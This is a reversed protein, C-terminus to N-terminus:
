GTAGWITLTFQARLVNIRKMLFDNVMAVADDIDFSDYIDMILSVLLRVMDQLPERLYEKILGVLYTKMGALADGLSANEDLYEGIGPLSTINSLLSSTLGDAFSMFAPEDEFVNISEGIMSMAEEFVAELSDQISGFVYEVTANIVGPFSSDDFSVGDFLIGYLTDNILVTLNEEFAVRNTIGQLLALKPQMYDEVLSWFTSFPTQPISVMCTAVHTDVSAPPHPGVNMTGGFAVGGIPYWHATLNFEYKDGFYESLVQTINRQLADDYQTTFVNIRWDFVQLQSALNEVILDAYTKHKQQKGILTDVVTYLFTPNGQDDYLYDGVIADIQEGAFMYGFDDDKSTMLMLLAEDVTEERHKDVSTEVAMNNYMAPLLIAGSLSVLVAFFVADYM